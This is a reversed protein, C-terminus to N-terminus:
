FSGGMARYLDLTRKIDNLQSKSIDKIKYYQRGILKMKASKANSLAEILEKDDSDLREDFWEWIMGGNGSDTETDSPIYEFAKGDISFRVKEFFLWNDAYYQLKLRLPGLKNGTNNFYLFIANTSVYNPASKPEIWITGEPDFEDKDQNFYPLLEKIKVSDIKASSDNDSDCHRKYTNEESQIISLIKKELKDKNAFFTTKSIELGQDDYLKFSIPQKSPNMGADQMDKYVKQSICFKEFAKLYADSDSPAMIINEDEDEISVNGFIGRDNVVEVYKYEKNITCASFISVLISILLLKKM